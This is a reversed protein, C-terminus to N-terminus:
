DVGGSIDASTRRSIIDTRAPAEAGSTVPVKPGLMAALDVGEPDALVARLVGMLTAAEERPDSGSRLAPEVVQSMLVEFHRSGRRHTDGYGRVLRACEVTQLALGRDLPVARSVAALWREIAQQEEEFRLSRPRWGKLLGLLRLQLFGLVTDTRVRIGINLRGSRGTRISWALIKRGMRPPLLSALEEVGPKMFESVQVPQDPAAGVEARIREVREPRTKLDAVRILDEFSMWLALRRATERSVPWGERGGLAAEAAVIVALRRLYLEAYWAGQYDALRRMGSVALQAVEAPLAAVEPAPEDTGSSEPVPEATAAWPMTGDAAKSGARFARISAEVAVGKERIAAEFAEPGVPLRRSGAVVGLLVANLAGGAERALRQMDLLLARNACRSAAAVIKDPEVRGDAGDAKESISYIRHTSAVLVTRDPSVFGNELSRGAELLESCVVLDLSGPSPYLGFVPERGELLELPHPLIELYYSTAGTRQAVGPVSTTQVLYGAHSAAGALWDALVGGGEGGLACILVSVPEPLSTRALANM